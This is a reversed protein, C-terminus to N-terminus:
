PLTASRAVAANRWSVTRNRVALDTIPGAGQCPAQICVIPLVRDLVVVEGGPAQAQLMAAGATGASPPPRRLWATVGTAGIALASITGPATDVSSVVGGPLGIRRVTAAQVGGGSHPTHTSVWTLWTATSTFRTATSASGAAGGSDGAREVRQLNGRPRRCARYGDISTSAGADEVHATTVRITDSEHVVRERPGPRCGRRPGRRVEMAARARAAGLGPTAAVSLECLNTRAALDRALVVRVTRTSAKVRASGRTVTAWPHIEDSTDPKVTSEGCEARATVVRDGAPAHLAAPLRVTLRRGTLRWRSRAGDITGTPDSAGTALAPTAAAAPAAGAPAAAVAVALALAVLAPLRRSRNM